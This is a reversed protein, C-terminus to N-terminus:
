IWILPHSPQHTPLYISVKSLHTSPHMPSHTSINILIHHISSWFLSISPCVYTHICALISSHFSPHISPHMCALISPHISSGISRHHTSLNILPHLISLHSFSPNILMHISIHVSTHSSLHVSLYILLNVLPYTMTLLNQHSVKGGEKLPTVM